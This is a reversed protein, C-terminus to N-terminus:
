SEQKMLYNIIGQQISKALTNQYSDSNLKQREKWYTMFGTEILVSPMSNNKIVVFRANRVRRDVPKAIDLISKHLTFALDKSQATHFYSELGHISNNTELANCHISVFIDPSKQKIINVRESLSVYKDGSRTLEVNLGSQELLKKTKHAIKLTITKEEITKFNAGPDYGGHGADLLVLYKKNFIKNHAKTTLREAVSKNSLTTFTFLAKQKSNETNKYKVDDYLDIVVRITKGELKSARVRQFFHNDTTITKAIDIAPTEWNKLDLIIRDPDSMKDITYDLNNKVAQIKLEFEQNNVQNINIYKNDYLAKRVAPFSKLNKDKNKDPFRSYVKVNPNLKPKKHSQNISSFGQPISIVLSSKNNAINIKNILDENQLNLVIRVTSPTFQGIRAQIGTNTLKNRFKESHFESKLLDIVYRYKGTTKKEDILKLKKIRLSQANHAIVVSHNSVSASLIKHLNDARSADAQGLTLLVLLTLLRIIFLKM